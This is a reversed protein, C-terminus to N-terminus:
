GNTTNMRRKISIVVLNVPYVFPMTTQPWTIFLVALVIAGGGYMISQNLWANGLGSILGRTYTDLEIAFVLSVLIFLSAAFVFYALLRVWWRSHPVALLCLFPFIGASPTNPQIIYWTPGTGYGLPSIYVQVGIVNVASSPYGFGNLWLSTLQASIWKIIFFDTLEYIVLGAVILGFFILVEYYKTSNVEEWYHQKNM